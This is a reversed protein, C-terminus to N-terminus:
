IMQTDSISKSKFGVLEDSLIKNQAKLKELKSSQEKFDEKLLSNKNTLAM